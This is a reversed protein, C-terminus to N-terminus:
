MVWLYPQEVLQKIRQLFRAAPGGDVIRHDFTLSLALMTRVMPIGGIVVMKDALRGVGLVACEPPNIIPTFTDIDYVGLNTITFTSGTLEDPL